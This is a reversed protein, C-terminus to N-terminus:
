RKKMPKVDDKGAVDADVYVSLLCNFGSSNMRLCRFVVKIKM